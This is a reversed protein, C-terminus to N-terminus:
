RHRLRMLLYVPLGAVGLAIAWLFPERGLGVFAFVSYTTGLLGLVWLDGPLRATGRRSLVLLAFSLQTFKENNLRDIRASLLESEAKLAADYLKFSQQIAGDGAEHYRKVDVKGGTRILEANALNLFTDAATIAGTVLPGLKSELAPNYRIASKVSRELDQISGQIQTTIFM